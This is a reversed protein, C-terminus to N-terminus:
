RQGASLTALCSAVWAADALLAESAALTAEHVVTGSPYRVLIEDLRDLPTCAKGMPSSTLDAWALVARAKRPPMAFESALEGDLGRLRAEVEAQTHWAVLSCVEAPWGQDRLWRAGDLPHFGSLVLEPAYGVDHLWAADLVATCWASGALQNAGAAQRAVAGSHALRSGVGTLLRAAEEPANM